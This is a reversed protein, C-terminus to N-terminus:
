RRPMVTTEDIRRENLSEQYFRPLGDRNRTIASFQWEALEIQNGSEVSLASRGAGVGERGLACAKLM